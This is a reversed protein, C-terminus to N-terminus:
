DIALRYFVEGGGLVRRSDYHVGLGADSCDAVLSGQRMWLFYYFLDEFSVGDATDELTKAFGFGVGPSRTELQFPV